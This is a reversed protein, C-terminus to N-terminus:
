QRVKMGSAAPTVVGVKVCPSGGWREGKPIFTGTPVLSMADVQTPM